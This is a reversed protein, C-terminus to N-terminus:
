TPLCICAHLVTLRAGSPSGTKSVKSEKWMHKNSNRSESWKPNRVGIGTYLYQITCCIDLVSGIILISLYGQLWGKQIGRMGSFVDHDQWSTHGRSETNRSSVLIVVLEILHWVMWLCPSCPKSQSHFGWYGTSDKWGQSPILNSNDEKLSPLNASHLLVYAM